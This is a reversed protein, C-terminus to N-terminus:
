ITKNSYLDHQIPMIPLHPSASTYQEILKRIQPLAELTVRRGEEYSADMASFETKGFHKIKPELIIDSFQEFPILDLSERSSSMEIVRQMVELINPLQDPDNVEAESYTDLFLSDVIHKRLFGILRKSYNYPINVTKLVRLIAKFINIEKPSFIFRMAAIDVSIVIDAGMNRAVDAPVINIM